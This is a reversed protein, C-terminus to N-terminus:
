KNIGFATGVNNYRGKQKLTQQHQKQKPRCAKFLISSFEVFVTHVTHPSVTEDSQM